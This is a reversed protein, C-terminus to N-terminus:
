LRKLKKPRCGNYPTLNYFKINKVIFNNKIYKFILKNHRQNTSNYHISISNTTLTKNQIILHKYLKILAYTNSKEAGKFGFLGSSVSQRINGLIDTINILINSKLFKLNLIFFIYKKTKNFLYTNYKKYITPSIQKYIYKLQKKYKLKLLLWIKVFLNKILLKNIKKM